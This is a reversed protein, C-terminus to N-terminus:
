GAWDKRDTKRERAITSFDTSFHQMERLPLLLWRTTWSWQLYPSCAAPWNGGHTHPFPLNDLGSVGKRREWPDLFCM